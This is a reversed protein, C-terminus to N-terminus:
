KIIDINEVYNKIEEKSKLTIISDGSDTVSKWKMENKLRLELDFGNRDYTWGSKIEITYNNFLYDSYYVCKKNNLVYIYSKGISIESLLKKNDMLELFYRENSGQYTLHGYQHTKFSSKVSKQFISENQMAHNVGYRELCTKRYRELFEKTQSYREVGYKELCVKKMKEKVKEDKNSSEFGYRELCTRKSKERNTYYKDGYKELKTQETKKFIERDKAPYKVGYKDSCTKEQKTMACKNSCCYDETLNKTNKTYKSYILTKEVVCVDCRVNLKVNSKLMLHDVKVTIIKKWDPQYGLKSYYEIQEKNGIRIDVEEQIIM